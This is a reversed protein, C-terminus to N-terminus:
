KLQGYLKLDQDTPVKEYSQRAMALTIPDKSALLKDFAKDVIARQASTGRFRILNMSGLAEFLFRRDSTGAAFGAIDEVREDTVVLKMGGLLGKGICSSISVKDMRNSTM